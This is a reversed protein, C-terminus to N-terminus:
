KGKLLLLNLVIIVKNKCRSGDPKIFACQECELKGHYNHDNPADFHFYM